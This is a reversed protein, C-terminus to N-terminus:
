PHKNLKSKNERSTPMHLGAIITIGGPWIRLSRDAVVALYNLGGAAQM